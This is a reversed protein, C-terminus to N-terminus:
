LSLPQPSVGIMLEAVLVLVAYVVKELLCVHINVVGRMRGGSFM